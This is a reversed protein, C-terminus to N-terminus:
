ARCPNAATLRTIREENETMAEYADTLRIYQDRMAPDAM